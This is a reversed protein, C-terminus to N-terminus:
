RIERFKKRTNSSHNTEFVCGCAVHCISYYIVGVKKLLYYKRTVAFFDRFFLRTLLTAVGGVGGGGGVCVCVCLSLSALRVTTLSMILESPINSSGSELSSVTNGRISM